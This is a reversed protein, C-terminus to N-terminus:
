RFRTGPEGKFPGVVEDTIWGGYFGGPQPTVLEDDLFAADVRSAYFAVHDKLQGFAAKPAPYYWAARESREAEAVIDYYRARGKWECYSSHKNPELLDTRVDRVPVYYTPPGGRERVKLASASDAMVRDNFIVRLRRGAPVVIPPRPYDWVSERGPGPEIRKSPM